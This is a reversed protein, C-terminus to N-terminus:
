PSLMLAPAKTRQRRAPALREVYSATRLVVSYALLKSCAQLTRLLPM